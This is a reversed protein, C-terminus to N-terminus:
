PNQEKLLDVLYNAEAQSLLGEWPPMATGTRGKLITHLLFARPKGRMADPTLAPGLGGALTLGHCSGCDQSLLHRLEARREANPREMAPSQALAPGMPLTLALLPPVLTAWQWLPRRWICLVVPRM